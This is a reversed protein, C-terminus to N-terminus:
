RTPKRDTPEAVFGREAYPLGEDPRDQQLRLEAVLAEANAHLATPPKGLLTGMAEEAYAAASELDDAQLELRALNVLSQCVDM